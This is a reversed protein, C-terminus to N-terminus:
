PNKAEKKSGNGKKEKAKGVKEAVDTKAGKRSKGMLVKAVEGSGILSVINSSRTANNISADTAATAPSQMSHSILNNDSLMSIRKLEGIETRLQDNEIWLVQIESKLKTEISSQYANLDEEFELTFQSQSQANAATTYRAVQDRWSKSTEANPGPHTTTDIADGILNAFHQGFRFIHQRSLCNQINTMGLKLNEKWDGYNQDLPVPQQFQDAGTATKHSQIHNKTIISSPKTSQHIQQHRKHAQDDDTAQHIKKRTIPSKSDTLYDDDDDHHTDFIPRDSVKGKSDQEHDIDSQTKRNNNQSENKKRKKNARDCTEHNVVTASNVLDTVSKKGKQPRFDRSLVPPPGPRGSLQSMQESLHEYLSPASPLHRSVRRQEKMKIINQTTMQLENGMQMIKQMFGAQLFNNFQNQRENLQYLEAM